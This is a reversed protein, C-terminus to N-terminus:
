QNILVRRHLLKQELESQIITSPCIKYVPNPCVEILSETDTGSDRNRIDQVPPLTTATTENRLNVNVYAGNITRTYKDDGKDNTRLGQEPLQAIRSTESKFVETSVISEQSGVSDSFDDRASSLRRNTGMYMEYRHVSGMKVYPAPAESSSWSRSRYQYDEGDIVTDISQKDDTNSDEAILNPVSKIRPKPVPAPLLVRNKQPHPAYSSSHVRAPPIPLPKKEKPPLNYVIDVGQVKPLSQSRRESQSPPSDYVGDQGRGRPLTRRTPLDYLTDKDKDSPPTLSGQLGDQSGHLAEGNSASKKPRLTPFDYLAADKNDERSGVGKHQPTGRRKAKPPSHLTDVVGTEEPELGQNGSTVSEKRRPPSDIPISVDKPPLPLVNNTVKDLEVIDASSQRVLDSFRPPQVSKPYSKKTSTSSALTQQEYNGDSLASAGELMSETRRPLTPPGRPAHSGGATTTNKTLAHSGGATTTDKTLAHSGGATTTDKTLTARPFILPPSSSGPLAMTQRTITDEQNVVLYTGDDKSNREMPQRSSDGKLLSVLTGFQEQLKTCTHQVSLALSRLEENESGLILVKESMLYFHEQFFKENHQLRDKYHYQQDCGIHKYECSVYRLPCESMLHDTLHSEKIGPMGCGNSCEIPRVRCVEGHLSEIRSATDRHHCLQCEVQRNECRVKQHEVMERRPVSVECEPCPVPLFRCNTTDDSIFENWLLHAELDQMRGSWLCGNIKMPCYVHLKDIVQKIALDERSTEKRYWKSRCKKCANKASIMRDVCKQCYRSNCCTLHCPSKMLQDCLYCRCEKPLPAVFTLELIAVEEVTEADDIM